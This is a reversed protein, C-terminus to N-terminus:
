TLVLVGPAATWQQNRGLALSAGHYPVQRERRLMSYIVQYFVPGDIRSM